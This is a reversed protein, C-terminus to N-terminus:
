VDSRDNRVAAAAVFALTWAVLVLTATGPALMHAVPRGAMADGAKGPLYRGVSPVAAFLATDVAVAYGAVAAITGAQNRILTAVAVGLMAGLLSAVITGFVLSQVHAGTVAFDVGRVALIASGAGFSVAACVVAILAGAPAAAALKAALIVRRRPEFLATPRITGYRFESTVAILGAFTSVIVATIDAAFMERQTSELALKSMTPSIGEVCAGFLTLGAGALVTWALTRTTRMKLWESRLQATM